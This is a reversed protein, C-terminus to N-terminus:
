QTQASRRHVRAVVRRARRHGDGRTLLRHQRPCLDRQLGLAFRIRAMVIVTITIIPISITTITIIIFITTISIPHIGIVFLVLCLRVLLFLLHMRIIPVVVLGHSLRRCLWDNGCRCRARVCRSRRRGGSRVLLGVMMMREGGGGIRGGIGGGTDHGAEHAEDVVRKLRQRVINLLVRVCLHVGSMGSRMRILILGRRCLSRRSCRRGSTRTHTRTRSLVIVMMVMVVMLLLLLRLLLRLWLLRQRLQGRM